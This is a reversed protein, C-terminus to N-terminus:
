QARSPAFGLGPQLRGPPFGSPPGREDHRPYCRYGPGRCPLRPVARRGGAEPGVRIGALGERGQGPSDVVLARSASVRSVPAPVAQTQLQSPVGQAPPCLEQPLKQARAARQGSLVVPRPSSPVRRIAGEEVARARSPTGICRAPTRSQSTPGPEPAVPRRPLGPLLASKRGRGRPPTFSLLGPGTDAGLQPDTPCLM